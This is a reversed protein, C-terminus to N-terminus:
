LQGIRFQGSGCISCTGRIAPRGNKTTVEQPNLMPTKQKCKICYVLLEENQGGAKGPATEAAEPERLAPPASASQAEANFIPSSALGASWAHINAVIQSPREEAIALGADQILVIEAQAPLHQEAPLARINNRANSLARAGWIVLAPQQLSAFQQSADTSLRGLLRALPAHEAGFQHATAYRHEVDAHLEQQSTLQQKMRLRLMSRTTLLPYILLRGLPRQVFATWANHSGQAISLELPSILVLRACLAPYRQAVHLAYNCSLESAVLTVPQAIVESLFDHCLEIYTEGTYAIAPHDSLGFGLLDPAYVRYEQALAAILKRMEYASNALAPAHLLLLAPADKAGFVKYFIHGHRWRYLHAEGPLISELPQPTDLIYRLAIVAACIWALCASLGLLEFLVLLRHVIKRM